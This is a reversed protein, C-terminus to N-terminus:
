RRRRYYFFILLSIAMFAAIFTYIGYSSKSMDNDVENNGYYVFSAWYYPSKKDMGIENDQLYDLKAHHLAVHAQRKEEYHEYFNAMLRSTSYDNVKWLSLVINKVGAHSFGSALSLPGEGKYLKGIGTECAGLVLLETHLNLGFIEPLYLASDIFTVSPPEYIGGSKAHTSLHIVPYASARSLFAHKTAQRDSLFDVDFYKSIEERENQSYKLFRDTGAFRPFFGLIKDTAFEGSHFDHLYLEASYQYFVPSQKILWPWRSFDQSAPKATLLGEFPIFNLLGDPIILLTHKARVPILIKCLKQALEAFVDPAANIKVEDTFMKGYQKVAKRVDGIQNNRFMQISSGNLVFGYLAETGFFYEVLTIQSARIKQQLSDINIQRGGHEPVFGSMSQKLGKLEMALRNRKDMLRDITGLNAEHGKLQEQVLATEIQSRRRVLERKKILVSDGAFREWASRNYVEDKLAISKTREAIEFAERVYNINKSLAFLRYSLEMVREARWRNEGQQLYKSEKYNYTEKLREEVSFSKKYCSIAQNLSDLAVFTGAMGDFIEKLANEAYLMDESPLPQDPRFQPIIQQLAKRYNYLSAVYDGMTSLLGAEQIIVKAYERPKVSPSAEMLSRAKSLYKLAGVTDRAKLNISSLISYINSLYGPERLAQMEFVTMAKLAYSEADHLEGLSLHNKALNSYILGAKETDTKTATNLVDIAERSKGTDHYVISLNILASTQQDKLGKKQAKLLYSKIISEASVYDGLMSYANGLPKLCYEIIDFDNFDFQRDYSWAKEYAQVAEDIQSYQLHYYGKNCLYITSALYERVSRPERWQKEGVEELLYFREFAPDKLFEDLYTYIFEDLSDKEMLEEVRKQFHLDAARSPLFMCLLFLIGLGQLVRFSM